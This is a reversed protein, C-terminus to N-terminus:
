KAQPKPKPQSLDVGASLIANAGNGPGNGALLTPWVFYTGAKMETATSYWSKWPQQVKSEAEM